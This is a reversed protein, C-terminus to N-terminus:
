RIKVRTIAIVIDETLKSFGSAVVPSPRPLGLRDAMTKAVRDSWFAASMYQEIGKAAAEGLDGAGYWAATQPTHAGKFMHSISEDVGANIRVALGSAQTDNVIFKVVAARAFAIECCGVPDPRPLDRLAEAEIRCLEPDLFREALERGLNEATVQRM